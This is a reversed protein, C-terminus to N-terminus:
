NSLRLIARIKNFDNSRVASDVDRIFEKFEKFKDVVYNEIIFNIGFSTVLSIM